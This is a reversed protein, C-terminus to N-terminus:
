GEGLGLLRTANDRLILHKDRDPLDAHDIRARQMASFYLPTDTGYLVREAGVEKVAWEILKPTISRASSTDAWVNGHRSQQIGRVQHTYDNDWGCGIHALILKVEPFDNAFRVFDSALSRQESSHVLLVAKHKAAFAFLECGHEAINYLHEEPHLKIGVCKPTHLMEDAQRYTEPHLPSVIVYQLLGDTRAVVDACERNGAVPDGGGRPLLGLLPSVVTWYTRAQRARRVVESADGSMLENVLNDEGRGYRGYHGHVDIAEIGESSM